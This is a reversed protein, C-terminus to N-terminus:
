QIIGVQHLERKVTEFKPTMSFTRMRKNLKEMVDLDDRKLYHFVGHLCDDILGSFHDPNESPDPNRLQGQELSQAEIVEASIDDATVQTS